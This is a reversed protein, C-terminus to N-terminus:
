RLNYDIVIASLFVQVHKAYSIGTNCYRMLKVLYKFDVKIISIM